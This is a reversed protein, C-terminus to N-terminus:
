KSYESKNHQCYQAYAVHVAISRSSKVFVLTSFTERYNSPKQQSPRKNLFNPNVHIGAAATTTTTTATAATSPSPRNSPSGTHKPPHPYRSTPTKERIYIISREIPEIIHRPFVPHGGPM